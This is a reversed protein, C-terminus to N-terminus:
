PKPAGPERYTATVDFHLERTCGGVNRMGGCSRDGSFREIRRELARIVEDTIDYGGDTCRTDSCSVTIVAAAHDVVFRRMYATEAASRCHEKMEINLSLLDPVRAILKGAADARELRENRRAEAEKFGRGSM